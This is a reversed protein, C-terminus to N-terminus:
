EEGKFKRMYTVFITGYRKEDFVEFYDALNELQKDHECVIIGDDSLLDKEYILKLANNYYGSAYPPDIIILDYKGKETKLFTEYDSCVFRADENILKVNKKAIELNTKNKDIFTVQKAGRSIAEVGLAGSGCFLDLVIKDEVFFQLKTFIAQKVKDTTPRISSDKPPILIRGRYKGSVIRM